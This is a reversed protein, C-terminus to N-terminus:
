QWRSLRRPIQYVEAHPNAERTHTVFQQARPDPLRDAIERLVGLEKDLLRMPAVSRM